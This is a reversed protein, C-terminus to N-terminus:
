SPKKAGAFSGSRLEQAEAYRLVAEGSASSALACADPDPSGMRRCPFARRRLAQGKNTTLGTLAETEGANAVRVPRVVFVRVSVPAYPALSHAAGSQSRARLGKARSRVDFM